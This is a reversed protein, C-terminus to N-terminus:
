RLWTWAALLIGLDAGDVKGDSNLDASTDAATGWQQLLLSLDTVDVGCDGNLDGLVIEPSFLLAIGVTSVFQNLDNLDQIEGHAPGLLSTMSYVQGDIWVVYQTSPLGPQSPAGVLGLILGGDNIALAAAGQYEALVPLQAPQADEGM